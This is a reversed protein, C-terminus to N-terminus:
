FRGGSFFPQRFSFPWERIKLRVTHEFASASVIVLQILRSKRSDSTIFHVIVNTTQTFIKVITECIKLKMMKGRTAIEKNIGKERAASKYM